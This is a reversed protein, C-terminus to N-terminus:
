TGSTTGACPPKTAGLYFAAAVLLGIGWLTYGPIVTLTWWLPLESSFEGLVIYTGGVLGFYATLGGGVAFAPVLVIWRPVDRGALPLVWRPWVRGWRHALALPLLSGAAAYLTLFVISAPDALAWPLGTVLEAFLRAPPEPWHV